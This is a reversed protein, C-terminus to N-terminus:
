QLGRQKLWKRSFGDVVMSVKKLDEITCCGLVFMAIKLEYIFKQLFKELAESGQRAAKLFPLAMGVADAGLSIAKAAQIGNRIGGTAIITKQTASRVEVVSLPTAIGWDWFLKGIEYHFENECRKARLAEVGTWTTGGVGGVDIGAIPSNEVLIADERSFGSGVEKLIVPVELDQAMQKIREFSKAFNRDGEIQVLEQAANVHVALVDAQILRVAEQAEKIGYGGKKSFQAAGLNGLLLTDPALERVVRFSENIYPINKEIAARQSGVGMGYKFKQAGKAIIENIERVDPHGGTMAAAIIPSSLKKGFLEISTDIDQWDLNTLARHPFHFDEWHGSNKSEVSEELCIELHSLKRFSTDTLNKNQASTVISRRSIFPM